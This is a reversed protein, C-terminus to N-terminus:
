LYVLILSPFALSKRQSNSTQCKKSQKQDSISGFKKNFIPFVCSGKKKEGSTTGKIICFTKKRCINYLMQWSCIKDPKVLGLELERFYEYKSLNYPFHTMNTTKCKPHSIEIAEWMATLLALDKHLWSFSM